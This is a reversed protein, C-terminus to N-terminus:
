GWRCICLQHVSLCNTPVYDLRTMWNGDKLRRQDSLILNDGRELCAFHWEFQQKWVNGSQLAQSLVFEGRESVCVTRQESLSRLKGACPHLLLVLPCCQCASVLVCFCSILQAQIYLERKERLVWWCTQWQNSPANHLWVPARKRRKYLFFMVIFWKQLWTICMPQDNGSGTSASRITFVLWSDTLDFQVLGLRSNTKGM